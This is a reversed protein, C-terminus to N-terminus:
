GKKLYIYFGYASLILFYVKNTSHENGEKEKVKEKVWKKVGYILSCCSVVRMMIDSPSEQPHYIIISLSYLLSRPYYEM